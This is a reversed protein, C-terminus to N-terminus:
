AEYEDAFRLSFLLTIRWRHLTCRGRKCSHMYMHQRQTLCNGRARQEANIYVDGRKLLEVLFAGHQFIWGM